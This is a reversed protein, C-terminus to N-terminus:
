PFEVLESAVYTIEDDVANEIYDIAVQTPYGLTEHYAVSLSFADREIADRIVEFVGDITLYIDMYQPDVPDGTDAETVSVITDAGVEIIVPSDGICFCLRAYRFRYDEIGSANWVALNDELENSDPDFLSSCGLLLSSLGLCATLRTLCRHANAKMAKDM